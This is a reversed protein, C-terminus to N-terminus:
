CETEFVCAGEEADGAKERFMAFLERGTGFRSEELLPGPSANCRAQWADDDIEVTLVGQACDLLVVDGDRLKALPGGSLCEPSVHLAAPVKGSAGSLRGDTVLAVRFGRDQLSSLPPLLKHLEPMGNAKPGQFRVVVVVDTELEANKFANQFAEQSDFIRCPACVRWKDEDVASTKAVARGLKGSLLVLGGEKRYPQDAPAIIDAAVGAKPSPRWRLQEDDLYPESAYDGLGKGTVTKIDGHLLGAGLLEGIVTGIGGAAHFQNVDAKGSPYIKAILPILASLDSFDDWNIRIGAARAMAVLHITHNTSGGTALLGIIANVIAKEDVLECLPLYEGRLATMEILRAVAAETLRDRLQGIPPVFAAGPIHLGMVEMLMQNSNATGYFTCTGVDHYAALESELLEERTAKGEAFRQRVMAKDSNSIGSSMPGSPIFVAPLHGFRLAGILLGPVIKDCIGLFMAADMTNHSLAVGTSMAILDRSFLSLEMGAYGQTVGDCMAPTGGAVMAVANYQRAYDKILPPYRGYPSHASLMDNYATVIGLNPPKEQMLLIKDGSPAAALGHAINTCGLAHRRPWDAAANKMRQLYRERSDRSRQQIRETVDLIGQKIESM